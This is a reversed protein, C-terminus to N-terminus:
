APELDPSPQPRSRREVLLAPILALALLASLTIRSKM